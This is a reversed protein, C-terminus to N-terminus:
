LDAAPAKHEVKYDHSVFGLSADGRQHERIWIRNGDHRWDRRWHGRVQHARKRALAIISRAVKQPDRGKPLIITVVNHESFRRYRGKAFFGHSQEVRTIGVPIDNITSLLSLIRRLELGQTKLLINVEGKLQYNDTWFESMENCLLGVHDSEYAAGSNFFARAQVRSAAKGASDGQEPASTALTDRWPLSRDDTTWAIDIPQQCIEGSPFGAFITARFATEINEHQRLLWGIRTAEPLKDPELCPFLALLRRSVARIDYEFWTIKHPLRALVRSAETARQVTSVSNVGFNAHALDALFESAAADLVFRRAEALLYRLSPSVHFPPVKKRNVKFSERLALDALIESQDVSM